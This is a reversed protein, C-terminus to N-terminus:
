PDPNPTLTLDAESHTTIGVPLATAISPDAMTQVSFLWPIRGILTLTLSQRCRFVILTEKWMDRSKLRETINAIAGDLFNVM